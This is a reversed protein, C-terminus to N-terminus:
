LNHTNSFGEVGRWRFCARIMCSKLIGFQKCVWGGVNEGLVGGCSFVHVTERSCGCVCVCVCACGCVIVCMSVCM